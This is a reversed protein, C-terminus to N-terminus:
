ILVKKLKEESEMNKLMEVWTLPVKTENSRTIWPHKLAQNVNYRSIPSYCTLKNILDKALNSFSEDFYFEQQDELKKKFKELSDGKEHLPHRGGSLLNYMIIGLSWVDISKSYEQKLAVEPAMYLATGWHADLLSLPCADNYQTALGFDVLTLDSLDSSNRFIINEPKLDRHVIGRNHLYSVAELISKMIKSADEDSLFKESDDTSSRNSGILNEILEQLTGGKWLEVVLVVVGKSQFSDLYKIIGPHDIQQLM